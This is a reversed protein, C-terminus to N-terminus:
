ELPQGFSRMDYVEIDKGMQRKYIYVYNVTYDLPLVLYEVVDGESRPRVNLNGHKCLHIALLEEPDIIGLQHFNHYVFWPIPTKNEIILLEDESGLGLGVLPEPEITWGGALRQPLTETPPVASEVEPAFTLGM